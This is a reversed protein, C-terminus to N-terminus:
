NILIIVRTGQYYRSILYVTYTILPIENYTCDTAQQTIPLKQTFVSSPGFVDIIIIIIFAKNAELAKETAEISEGKKPIVGM